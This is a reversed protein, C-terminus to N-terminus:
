KIINNFYQCWTNIICISCKPHISKCFYRGHLGFWTHIRSQFKVPVVQLLKKEVQYASSGIAFGSRNSVRFVHTDVAIFNKKLAINLFLNATKRGIGPLKLLQSRNMPIKENYLDTLIQCTNFIFISKKNFLGLSQIINKLKIYGLRLVDSPKSVYLFLKKTVKAVQIDSSKASLMIFILLEFLSSYNLEIKLNLFYKRLHKLLLTRTKIDM